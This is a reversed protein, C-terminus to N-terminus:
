IRRRKLPGHGGTDVQERKEEKYRRSDEARDGSDPERLWAQSAMAERSFRDANFTRERETGRDEIAPRRLQVRDEEKSSYKARDSDYLSSEYKPLNYIRSEEQDKVAEAPENDVINEINEQQQTQQTAQLVPSTRSTRGEMSGESAFDDSEQEESNEESQEEENAPKIEKFRRNDIERIIKRQKPQEEEMKM